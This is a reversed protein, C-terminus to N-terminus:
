EVRKVLAVAYATIGVKGPTLAGPSAKAKVSVQGKDIGLTQSIQERMRDIFESLNPSEAIVTTDINGIEWGQGQLLKGVRRLLVLSSIGKYRPDSPPFHSGIDGSATAGLLADIIAHLLVDADSYGALRYEFPIEVGGLILGQGETLPHFDHGYGIRM